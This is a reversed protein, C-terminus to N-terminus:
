KKIKPISNENTKTVKYKQIMDISNKRFKYLRKQNSYYALASLASLVLPIIIAPLYYAPNSFGTNLVIAIGLFLWNFISSYMLRTRHARANYATYLEPSFLAIVEDKYKEYEFSKERLKGRFPTILMSSITAFLAGLLYAFPLFFILIGPQINLLSELPKNLIAMILLLLWTSTLTGIILYEVFPTEFNM